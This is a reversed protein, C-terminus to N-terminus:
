STIGSADEWYTVAFTVTFQEIANQQDYSLEIEGVDTPWIGKFRYTKVINGEKDLQEVQMDVHYDLPNALGTNANHRNIQNMWQVFADRIKFDIDNYATITWDDFSRDGAIPVNRGRYPVDIKAIKSGPLKSTRCMFSALESIAAGNSIFSPFTLVCRFLNARAGGGILKAKFSDIDIIAM